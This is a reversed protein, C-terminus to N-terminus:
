TLESIELEKEHVAMRIADVADINCSISKIGYKVLIKAMESDSGAEGCISTEVSYRSCTDIVMKMSRLVAPHFTSSLNALRENGRDIGLTLQTLDNTGFSAFAIGEKCLEEIIMVSAPTEVMIGIKAADPLGVEHAIKRAKQVEEASIVFPLMVQLNTLGEEHMKKIARFESKLLEPEDLSRRIGHWGLMPNAEQPEDEGGKLNKFEDSRADLTRVWVPKPSFAKAIPRIGDILLKVYEEQKGEKVLKSPHVGFQTILHEIRLLGVGDAKPAIENLGQAFALNVKVKTRTMGAHVEVPTEIDVEIRGDYVIGDYADVTVEQGDKLVTTAQQTGVIAPIGMERSVIAAHSTRGGLDTIIAASRSMAPVLDPSTMTTVIIDGKNIKAVDDKSSIIRVRGSAAGPSAGVGKLLQNGKIGVKKTKGKTTIARTQVIAIKGNEIAFEVDQPHRYHRELTLGFEALNLIEQETLVQANAKDQPVDLEVTTNSAQDRVRMRTKNSVQIDIIKGNKDVRYSDPSVEGGVISEGLGWTAEILVVDEGTTPDATFMVGSKDAEIMKQVIVSISSKAFGHKARYFIARPEFLSAWCKKISEVLEDSGKVNLFSAQQGAFSATPLDEATASSRVAVLPLSSDSTASDPLSKYAEDVKLRVEPPMEYSLIMAKIEKSADLLKATDDVNISSIILGIKKGLDHMRMLLDFSATTVAFGPPVPIGLKLMEGLNAGKGGAIRLDDKGIQDLRVVYDM